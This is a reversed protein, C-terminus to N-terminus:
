RTSFTRGGTGDLFEVVISRDTLRVVRYKGDFPQGEKVYFLAGTRPDKMTAVNGTPQTQMIFLLELNVMPPPPPPPPPPPVYPQPPPPPPPPPPPKEGFRFPNRRTVPPEPLPELAALKVAEFAPAPGQPARGTTESTAAPASATTSTDTGGFQYWGLGAVVIALVGLLMLQRRREPGPPPLLNM